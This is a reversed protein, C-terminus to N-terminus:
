DHLLDEHACTSVTHLLVSRYELHLSSDDRLSYMGVLAARDFVADVPGDVDSLTLDFVDGVLVKIGRHPSSLLTFRGALIWLLVFCYLASGHVTDLWGVGEVSNYHLEISRVRECILYM